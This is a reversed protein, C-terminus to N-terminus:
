LQVLPAEDWNDPKIKDEPRFMAQFPRGHLIAKVRADFAFKAWDKFQETKRQAEEMYHGTLIMMAGYSVSTMLRAKTHNFIKEAKAKKAM